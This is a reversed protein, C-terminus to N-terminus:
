RSYANGAGEYSHFEYTKGRAKLENELETVQDPSPYQRRHRHFGGTSRNPPRATPSM